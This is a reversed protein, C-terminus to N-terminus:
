HDWECIFWQPTHGGYWWPWQTSYRDWMVINEGQRHPEDKFREGYNEYSMKEGTVWVYKNDQQHVLGLLIKPSRGDFTRTLRSVISNETRSNITLLHGGQEECYKKAQGFSAHIRFLKYHHGGFRIADRPVGRVPDFNSVSIDDLYIPRSTGNREDKGRIRMNFRKKDGLFLLRFQSWEVQEKMDQDHPIDVTSVVVGGTRIQLEVTNGNSISPFRFWAGAVYWTKKPLEIDQSIYAAKGPENGGDLLLCASKSGAHPRGAELRFITDGAGGKDGSQIRWPAIDGAEFDGNVVHNGTEAVRTDEQLKQIPDAIGRAFDTQGYTQNFNAIDKRFGHATEADMSDNKRNQLQNWSERAAKEIQQRGRNELLAVLTKGLESNLGEFYGKANKLEKSRLARLGRYLTFPEQGVIAARRLYEGPALQGADFSYPASALSTGGKEIIREARVNTPNVEIINLRLKDKKLRVVITKGEDEKFSELVFQDMRACLDLLERAKLIENHANNAALAKVAEDFKNNFLSTAAREILHQYPQPPESKVDPSKVDPPVQEPPATPAPEPTTTDQVPLPPTPEQLVEAPERKPIPPEPIFAPEHQEQTTTSVPETEPSREVVTFPPNERHLLHWVMGLAGLLLCLLTISLAIWLKKAGLARAYNEDLGASRQERMRQLSNPDLVLQQRQDPSDDKLTGSEPPRFLILEKTNRPTQHDMVDFIYPRYALQAREQEARYAQIDFVVKRFLVEQQELDLICYSARMDGDRPDGVSGVNVVYQWGPQLALREPKRYQLADDPTLQMVCPEHTHGLFILPHPCAEISPLADEPGLVYDYYGPDAYDAHACAFGEADLLLPLESFFRGAQPDLQGCTWEIVSKAKPTFCEPDLMGAVVADHNGLVFYDSQAYVSELVEAPAPGYGIVDGLCIIADVNNCAIDTSVAQWAQRNAHIDSILAYRM